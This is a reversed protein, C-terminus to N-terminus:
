RSEHRRRGGCHAVLRSWSQQSGWCPFREVRLLARSRRCRFRLQTNVPSRRQHCSTNQSRVQSVQKKDVADEVEELEEDMHSRAGARWQSLEGNCSTSPIAAHPSVDAEVNPTPVQPQPMPVAAEARLSELRAVGAKLEEEVSARLTQLKAMDEDCKALLRKKREVYKACSDLRVGVPAGNAAIRAKALADQLVKLTAPDADGLAQISAELSVVKPRRPM